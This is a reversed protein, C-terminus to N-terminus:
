LHHVSVSFLYLQIDRIKNRAPKFTYQGIYRSHFGAKFKFFELSLSSMRVYKVRLVSFVLACLSHLQDVLTLMAQPFLCRVQHSLLPSSHWSPLCVSHWAMFDCWMVSTLECIYACKALSCWGRLCFIQLRSSRILVSLFVNSFTM